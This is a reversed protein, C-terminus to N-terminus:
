STKEKQLQKISKMFDNNGKNFEAELKLLSEEERSLIQLNNIIEQQVEMELNIKQM